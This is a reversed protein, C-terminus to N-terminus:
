ERKEEKMERGKFPHESKEIAKNEAKMTEKRKQNSL